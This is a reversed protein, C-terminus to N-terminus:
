HQSEAALPVGANKLTEDFTPQPSATILFGKTVQGDVYWQVQYCEFCIIFDHTKGDYTLKIAHRPNFCAAVTGDNEAVGAAFRSILKARTDADKIAATGLIKWGHLADADSKNERRGPDLSLLEFATAEKLVKAAAPPMSNGSSCGLLCSFASVIGVLLLLRIMQAGAAYRGRQGPRPLYLEWKLAARDAAGHGVSQEAMRQSNTNM